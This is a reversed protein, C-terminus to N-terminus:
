PFRHDGEMWIIPQRLKISEPYAFSPVTLSEQNM